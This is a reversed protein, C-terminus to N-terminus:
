IMNVYIFVQILIVCLLLLLIYKKVTGLISNSFLMYANLLVIAYRYKSM